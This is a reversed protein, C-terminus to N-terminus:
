EDIEVLKKRSTKGQMIRVQYRKVNFHDSLVGILQKNACNDQPPATLYVKLGADEKKVCARSAKPIVRVEVIM